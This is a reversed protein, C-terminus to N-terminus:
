ATFKLMAPFTQDIKDFEQVHTLNPLIHTSVATEDLVGEYEQMSVIAGENKSGSLWLTPCRFDQPEVSGWDLMATLWALSVPVDMQAMVDRDEDSLSDVNLDGALKAQVIPQWHDSFDHIFQRFEGSAALGLPIGIIVLQSVRKSRVALFRAINGGYSFGWIAFRDVGCADAVDLIDECMRDIAYASPDTPKGSAGHGRIDMTIVKYDMKLRKVYGAEHWSQRSQGGGGGHLLMITEGKGVIDYVLQIGDTTKISNTKM